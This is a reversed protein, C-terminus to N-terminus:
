FYHWGHLLQKRWSLPVWQIKWVHHEHQLFATATQPSTGCLCWWSGSSVILCTKSCPECMLSCAYSGLQEAGRRGVWMVLWMCGGVWRYIKNLFFFYLFDMRFFLLNYDALLLPFAMWKWFISHIKNLFYIFLLGMKVTFYSDALQLSFAMWKWFLSCIKNFVVVFFLLLLGM